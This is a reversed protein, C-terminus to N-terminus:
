SENDGEITRAPRGIRGVGSSHDATAKKKQCM